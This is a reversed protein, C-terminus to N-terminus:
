APLQQNDRGVTPCHKRYPCSRYVSGLRLECDNLMAPLEENDIHKNLMTVEALMVNEREVTRRIRFEHFQGTAREEYLLSLWEADDLYQYAATQKLHEAKPGEDRTVIKSYVGMSATKLEFLSEDSLKADISGGMRLLEDYVWREAEIIWGRTLGEAQWRMHGWTGLGMLEFSDLNEGTKPAGYVGFLIRRSCMGLSSPSIRGSREHKYSNMMAMHVFDAAAETYIQESEPLEVWAAHRPAFFLKDGRDALRVMDKLSSM